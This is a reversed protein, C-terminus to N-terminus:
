SYFEAVGGHHSCSGSHHASFSYTGDNCLATAGAPRGPATEPDHICNGDVNVYYGAGCAAAAHTTPRPAAAHTTAPKPAKTVPPATIVPAPPITATVVPPVSETTTLTGTGPWDLGDNATSLGPTTTIVPVSPTTVDPACGALLGGGLLLISFGSVLGLLV